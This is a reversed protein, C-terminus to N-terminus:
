SFTLDFEQSFVRGVIPPIVASFDEDTSFIVGRNVIANFVTLDIVLDKDFILTKSSPVPDNINYLLNDQVIKYVYDLSGYTMIAIDYITQGNRSILESAM